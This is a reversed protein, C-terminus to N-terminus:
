AAERSPVYGDGSGHELLYFMREAALKADDPWCADFVFGWFDENDDGFGFYYTAYNDWGLGSDSGIGAAPGHGLFCASTGCAIEPIERPCHALGTDWEFFYSMNFHEYDDPLAQVYEALKVCNARQAPTPEFKEMVIVGKLSNVRWGADCAWRPGTHKLFPNGSKGIM